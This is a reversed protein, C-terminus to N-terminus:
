DSKEQTLMDCARQFIAPLDHLLDRVSPENREIAHQELATVLDRLERTGLNSASSRLSHAASAVSKWTAPHGAALAAEIREPVHQLFLDIMEGLLTDGGLSRLRDLMSADLSAERTM